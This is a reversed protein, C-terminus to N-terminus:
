LVRGTATSWYHAGSLHRGGVGYHGWPVGNTGDASMRTLLGLLGGGPTVPDMGQRKPAGLAAVIGPTGAQQNAQPLPGPTVHRVRGPTPVGYPTRLVSYLQGKRSAAKHSKANKKGQTEVFQSRGGPDESFPLSHLARFRQKM